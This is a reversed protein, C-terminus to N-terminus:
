AAVISDEHELDTWPIVIEVIEWKCLASCKPCRCFTDGANFLMEVGCCENVYLGLEEATDGTRKM